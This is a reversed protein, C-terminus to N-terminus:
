ITPNSKILYSIFDDENNTTSIMFIDDFFAGGM